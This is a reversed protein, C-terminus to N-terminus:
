FMSCSGFIFAIIVRRALPAATTVKWSRFIIRVPNGFYALYNHTFTYRSQLLHSCVSLIFAGTKETYMWAELIM